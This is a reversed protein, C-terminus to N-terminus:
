ENKISRISKKQFALRGVEAFATTKEGFIKDLHSVSLRSRRKQADEKETRQQYAENLKMLRDNVQNNRKEMEQVAQQQDASSLVAEDGSTLKSNRKDQSMMVSGRKSPSRGGSLDKSGKRELSKNIDHLSKKYGGRLDAFKQGLLNAYMATAQEKKTKLAEDNVQQLVGYCSQNLMDTLGSVGEVNNKVPDPKSASPLKFADEEPSWTESFRLREALKLTQHRAEMRATEMKKMAKEREAM